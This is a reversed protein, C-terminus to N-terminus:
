SLERAMAMIDAIFVDVTVHQVSFAPKPIGDNVRHGEPSSLNLILHWKGTTKLFLGLAASMCGLFQNVLSLALSGVVHSKLRSTIM